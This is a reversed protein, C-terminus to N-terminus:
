ETNAVGFGWTRTCWRTTQWTLNDHIFYKKNKQNLKFTNTKDNGKGYVNHQSEYTNNKKKIAVLGVKLSVLCWLCLCLYFYFDLVPFFNVELNM